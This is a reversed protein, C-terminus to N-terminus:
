SEIIDSVIKLKIESVALITKLKIEHSCKAVRLKAIKATLGSSIVVFQTILNRLM